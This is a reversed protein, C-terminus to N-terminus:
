KSCCFIAYKETNETEDFAMGSASFISVFLTVSM